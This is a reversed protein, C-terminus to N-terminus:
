CDAQRLKTMLQHVMQNIDLDQPCAVVIDNGCCDLAYGPNVTVHGKECPACTVGLGCAVGDGFLHRNHLRNKAVVYDGLSQLDDETLLQGAFFLPRVYSQGQCTACAGGGGCNCPSATAAGSGGCGCPSKSSSVSISANAAM